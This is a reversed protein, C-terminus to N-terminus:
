AVQRAGAEAGPAKGPAEDVALLGLRARIEAARAVVQEITMDRMIDSETSDLASALFQVARKETPTVTAVVRESRSEQNAGTM